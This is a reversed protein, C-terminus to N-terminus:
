FHIGLSMTYAFKENDSFLPDIDLIHGGSMDSMSWPTTDRPRKEGRKSKTTRKGLETSGAENENHTGQAENIDRLTRKQLRRERKAFRTEQKLQKSLSQEAVTRTSSKYKHSAGKSSPLHPFVKSDSAKDKTHPELTNQASAHQRGNGQSQSHAVKITDEIRPVPTSLQEKADVTVEVSDSKTANSSKGKDQETRRGVEMKPASVRDLIQVRGRLASPHSKAAADPKSSKHSLAHATSLLEVQTPRNQLSKRQNEERKRRKEATAIQQADEDDDTLLQASVSVPKQSIKADPIAEGSKSIEKQVKLSTSNQGLEAQAGGVHNPVASASTQSGHKSINKRSRNRKKTPSELNETQIPNTERDGADAPEQSKQVSPILKESQRSIQSSVSPKRKTNGAILPHGTHRPQSTFKVKKSSEWEEFRAKDHERKRKRAM